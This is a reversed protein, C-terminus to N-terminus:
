DNVVESYKELERNYYWKSVGCHLATWRREPNAGVASPEHVELMLLLTGPASERPLEPIRQVWRRLQGVEIM